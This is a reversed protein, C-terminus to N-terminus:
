TQYRVKHGAVIFVITAVYDSILLIIVICSWFIYFFRLPNFGFLPSYKIITILNRIFSFVLLPIVATNAVQFM